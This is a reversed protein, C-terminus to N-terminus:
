KTCKLIELTQALHESQTQAACLHKKKISFLANALIKSIKLKKLSKSKQHLNLTMRICASVLGRSRSAQLGRPWTSVTLMISRQADLSKVHCLRVGTVVASASM